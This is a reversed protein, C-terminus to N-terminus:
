LNQNGQVCGSLIQALNPSSVIPDYLPSTHLGVFPLVNLVGGWPLATVCRMVSGLRFLGLALGFGVGFINPVLIVNGINTDVRRRM